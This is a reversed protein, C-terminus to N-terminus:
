PKPMNLDDGEDYGGSGTQVEVDDESRREWSIRGPRIDEVLNAKNQELSGDTFQNRITATGDDNVTVGPETAQGQGVFDLYAMSLLRTGEQHEADRYREGSVMRVNLIPAPNATGTKYNLAYLRSKGLGACPDVSPEYATSFLVGGALISRTLNRTSPNYCDERKDDVGPCADESIYPLYRRWGVVLDRDVANMLQDFQTYGGLEGDAKLDGDDDVRMIGSDGGGSRWPPPADPSILMSGDTFVDAYSVDALEQETYKDALEEERADSLGVKGDKIGYLYNDYYTQRDGMSMLRGTGFYVWRNSRNDIGVMPQVTVPRDTEYFTKLTWKGTEYTDFFNLKLVGGAPRASADTVKGDSGLEIEQGGIVGIYAANSEFNLDWDVVSPPGIFSNKLESECTLIEYSATNGEILNAKVCDKPKPTDSPKGAVLQKLDFLYVTANQNTTVSELNHEITKPGNGFVLYWALGGQGDKDFSAAAPYVTTFSKDPLPIEGLLVPPVEPNTVDFVLYSSHFTHAGAATEVEIPSGGKEMGVVLITGWCAGEATCDRHSEDNTFINADFVRPVGNVYYVHTSDGYEKETLWRLHPLAAGPAYAWLEAGLPHAATPKVPMKAGAPPETKYSTFKPESGADCKKFGGKGDDAKCEYFGGNFAHLLGDNAGSYVVIRRDQWTSRFDRYSEYLGDHLHGYLIDYNEMPTAVVTPNSDIIDGLRQVRNVTAGGADTTSVTRSRLNANEVGRIWNVINAARTRGADTAEVDFFRYLDGTNTLVDAQFPLYEGADVIGDLDADVWTMIYRGTAASANYSRNASLTTGDLATLQSQANWIPTLDRFEIRTSSLLVRDGTKIWAAGADANDTTATFTRPNENSLLLSSASSGTLGSKSLNQVQWESPSKNGTATMDYSSLRVNACSGLAGDVTLTMSPSWTLTLAGAYEGSGGPLCQVHWADFSLGADGVLKGTKLTIQAGAGGSAVRRLAELLDGGASVVFSKGGASFGLSTSSTGAGVGGTTTVDWDAASEGTPGKFETVDMTVTGRGTDGDEAWGTVTGTLSYPELTLTTVSGHSQLSGDVVHGEMSYPVMTVNLNGGSAGSVATVVGELTATRFAAARESSKVYSKVSKSAADYKTETVRDVCYSDLIHNPTCTYGAPPEICIGNVDGGNQFDSPSCDERIYGANDIWQSQLKGTWRVKSDDAGTAPTYGAQYIAGEGRTNSPSAAAATGSASTELIGSFVSALDKELQSPDHAYYFEGGGWKSAYFLPDELSSAESTGVTYEKSTANSHKVNCAGHSGSDPHRCWCGKFQHKNVTVLNGSANTWQFPNNLAKSYEVGCHDGTADTDYVANPILTFSFANTTANKDKTYTYPYGNIGSHVHLGDDDTGNIVYGFAMPPSASQSFVQSTVKLKKSNKNYEYKLVGWMDQDYDGGQEVDEWNVYLTSKVTKAAKDVEQSVIRFDVIACRGQVNASSYMVCAPMITVPSTGGDPDPVNVVPTGSALAVGYNNVKQEGKIDQRIDYEHAYHALGAIRYSGRLRPAEPCLGGLDGLGELEKLTCLQNGSDTVGGANLTEGFFFKKGNLGAKEGVEDTMGAITKGSVAADWIASLNLQDLNDADYSLVSSNINVVTMPVCDYQQDKLPDVAEESKPLGPIIQDDEDSKFAEILGKGALYNLSQAYIEAFPNGWNMCRGDATAATENILWKCHDSKYTDTTTGSEKGTGDGSNYYGKDTYNWGVIRYLSWANILGKSAKNEAPGGAFKAVLPFTGDTDVNVEDRLSQINRVLNGGTNHKYYTGAVMGFFLQDKDGYEQLLGVPKWNGDPYQKCKEKTYGSVLAVEDNDILNGQAENNVCVQVRVIYQGWGLHEKWEPSSSGADIGSKAANNSNGGGGAMFPTFVGGPANGTWWGDHMRQSSNASSWLIQSGEGAGWLSYDGVVTKMIPPETMYQSVRESTTAYEDTWVDTTNGFTVGKKQANGGCRTKNGEDCWFALGGGGEQNGGAVGSVDKDSTSRGFPTLNRLDAGAYHKAWSHADHPLFARELVTDTATDVRRHGGFFIKRVADIRSMTVWNLFNGSFKMGKWEDGSKYNVKFIYDHAFPDSSSGQWNNEDSGLLCKRYNDERTGADLGNGREEALTDKCKNVDAAKIDTKLNCYKSPTFSVPEFRGAYKRGGQDPGVWTPNYAYCKYSDFYGYYNISHKYTTDPEGDGDIDSYDSFAKFFLQHDNSANLMVLPTVNSGEIVNLPMMSYQTVKDRTKAQVAGPLGAALGFLLGLAAGTLAFAGGRRRAKDLPPSYHRKM